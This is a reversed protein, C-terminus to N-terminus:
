HGDGTAGGIVTGAPLSDSGQTVKEAAPKDAYAPAPQPETVIRARPAAYQPKEACASCVDGAAGVAVGCGPCKAGFQKLGPMTAAVPVAARRCYLFAMAGYRLSFEDATIREGTQPDFYPDVM